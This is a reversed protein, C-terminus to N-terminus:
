MTIVTGTSQIPVYRLPNALFFTFYLPTCYRYPCSVNATHIANGTGYPANGTIHNQPYPLWCVSIMSKAHIRGDTKTLTCIHLKLGNSDRRYKFEDPIFKFQTLIFKLSFSFCNNNEICCYGKFLTMINRFRWLIKSLNKKPVLFCM